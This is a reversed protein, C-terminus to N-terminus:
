AKDILGYKHLKNYLTKYDISLARAAKTKDWATQRLSSLILREEMKERIQIILKKYEFAVDNLSIGMISDPIQKSEIEEKSIQFEKIKSHLTKYDIGFLRAAKAKNGEADNLAKIILIREFEHGIKENLDKLTMGPEIQLEQGDIEQDYTSAQEGIRYQKMKKSLTKANIKLRESARKKNYSSEMLLREIYFKEAQATVEEQMTKLSSRYPVSVSFKIGNDAINESVLPPPLHKPLIIEDAMISAGQIVNKLERINGPWSYSILIDMVEQSLEQVQEPSGKARANEVLFHRALLLIDNPRERLPPLFIHFQNIRFYLDERFTGANKAADLNVNTASILRLDIHTYDKGGLPLIQREQIVRLLKSQNEPRLNGIEDLFLTGRHAMEFLGKKKNIAGTFAGREYGFVESEFLNDPIAACDMPAFPGEKRQSNYHVAQAVLEKGTGNEGTILLSLDSPAVKRLKDFIDFMKPDATIISSFDFKEELKKRLLALEEKLKKGELARYISFKIEELHYPKTFYDYAGTKIAQVADKISENGTLIFTIIEPYEARIRELAELGNMGPMMVDLFVIHPLFAPLVKLADTAREAVRVMYGEKELFSILAWLIEPQDDVLLVRGAYAKSMPHDNQINQPEKNFGETDLGLNTTDM